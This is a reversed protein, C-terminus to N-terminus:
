GPVRRSMRARIGVGPSNKPTLGRGSRFENKAARTRVARVGQHGEAPRAEGKREAEEREERELDGRLASKEERHTRFPKAHALCPHLCITAGDSCSGSNWLPMPPPLSPSHKEPHTLLCIVRCLFSIVAAQRRPQLSSREEGQLVTHEQFPCQDSSSLRPAERPTAPRRRRAGWRRRSWGPGVAGTVRRTVPERAQDVAVASDQGRPVAWIRRRASAVEEDEYTIPRILRRSAVGESHDPGCRHRPRSLLRTM